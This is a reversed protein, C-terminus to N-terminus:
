LRRNNSWLLWMTLYTLAGLFVVSGLVILAITM